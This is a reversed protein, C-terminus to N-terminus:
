VTSAALPDTPPAMTAAYRTAPGAQLRRGVLQAEGRDLCELV